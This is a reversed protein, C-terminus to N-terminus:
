NGRVYNEHNPPLQTAWHDPHQIQMRINRTWIESQGSDPNIKSSGRTMDVVSQLYGIPKGEVM